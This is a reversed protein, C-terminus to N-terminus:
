AILGGDVVLSTGTVYSSLDSALFLVANAIEEATAIRKMPRNAVSKLFKEEDEGLQHAEDHLLPTDVAGPCVCNVRIGQEAHDIAMARTMIVVGGKTACYSVVNQGGKLGLGSSTNIITGGGGAAMIPIVYKSLLFVGTLNVSLVLDWDKKDLDLVNKHRIIGANNFLINIQGFENKVANVVKKVELESSVNCKYFKTKNGAEKIEREAKRGEVKNIDLLAVAAGFDAMKKATALGIGSAGGTIISVKGTLSIDKLKQNEDFM